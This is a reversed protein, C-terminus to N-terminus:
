VDPEGLTRNICRTAYRLADVARSAYTNQDGAFDREIVDVAIEINGLAEDLRETEYQDLPRISAVSPTYVATKAIHVSEFPSKIGLDAIRQLALRYFSAKAEMMSPTMGYIQIFSRLITADGSDQEVRVRLWAIEEEMEDIYAASFVAVTQEGDEASKSAQGESSCVYNHPDGYKDLVLWAIPKPKESM